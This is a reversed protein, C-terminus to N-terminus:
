QHVKTLRVFQFVPLRSQQLTAQGKESRQPDPSVRSLSNTFVILVGLGIPFQIRVVQPPSFLFAWVVMAAFFAVAPFYFSKLSKLKSTMKWIIRGLWLMSALGILGSWVWVGGMVSHAPIHPDGDFSSLGQTNTNLHLARLYAFRNNEDLAWSGWGFVPKEIIALPMVLWESRGILLLSFPNYPSSLRQLQIANHGLSNSNLSYSVYAAYAGYSLLLGVITLLLLSKMTIRKKGGFLLSTLGAFFLMLGASRADVFFYFISFAILWQGAFRLSQRALLVAACIVLPTIAPEFRVKFFNTNQQVTAWATELHAFADGYAPEGLVGKALGVAVLYTLLSGPSRSVCSVVFVLGIGGIIPTAINRLSDFIATANILDSIVAALVWLAYAALVSRMVPFRRLLSPWKMLACGLLSIVEGGYLRFGVDFAMAWGIGYAAMFVHPWLVKRAPVSRQAAISNM